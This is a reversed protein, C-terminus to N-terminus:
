YHVDISKARGNRVLLSEPEPIVAGPFEAKKGNDFTVVIKAPTMEWTNKRKANHYTVLTKGLFMFAFANKPTKVNTKKGSVYVSRLEEKATFMDAALLPAFSLAVGDATKTFPAKGMFMMSAIHMAEITSGSLRAVFGRGWVNKNVYASSAIFSSNELVSRGYMQPDLNCVFAGKMADYFEKMCGAKVLELLYKYEMHLWISENELWGPKFVRSRGVEYPEKELSANLKFMKIAKDYLPSKLVEAHAKAVGAKDMTKYARVYGELFLPLERQKFQEPVIVGDRVHYKVLEAAFFSPIDKRKALFSLGQDIRDIGDKLFAILDSVRVDVDGTSFGWHTAERYDEKINNTAYWFDFANLKEALKTRLNGYFDFLERPLAVSRDEFEALRTVMVQMMRKLEYTESISSGFIAPLGNLADCWGPKGGEMEIGRGFPDLTAFKNCVLTMMKAVLSTYVVEDTGKYRARAKMGGRATLAMDKAKDKEIFHGQYVKGNKLYYRKSRPNVKHAEDYFTYTKEFFLEEAKDPFVALYSEVLDLNYTWHDCWFGEGFDCNEMAVSNKLLTEVLASLKTKALGLTKAKIVAEGVDFEGGVMASLGDTIDKGAVASLAKAPTVGAKLKYRCQKVVLPNYGDARILSYFTNISQRGVRPEVMVDLRRNQNVDRFNGNGSSLYTPALNFQNYDREIDGHKRTYTYYVDDGFVEPSGGRLVNDLYNQKTYRDFLPSGSCCFFKDTVSEILEVNRAQKEKIFGETAKKAFSKLQKDDTAQGFISYFTLSSGAKLTTKHYAFASPTRGTKVQAAKPDFKKDYFNHPVAYGTDEKFLLSGDVIPALLTQKKTGGLVSMFFHSGHIFTTEAVDAPSVRLRYAAVDGDTTADMWAEITRSMEKLLWNNMGFPVIQPMGDAVELAIAGKSINTITVQRVLGPIDEEPLTVYNVDFKLGIKKNTETLSFSEPRVTMVQEKSANDLGFPEYCSKGTKVFTRFGKEYTNAYAQNAPYFEMLAGSKGEVGFSTIGQGRNVYFSWMPIGFRGAVGPLFSAFAPANNYDAITFSGNDELAYRSM